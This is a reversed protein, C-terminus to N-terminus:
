AVGIEKAEPVIGVFNYYIEIRQTRKGDVKEPAFILIKEILENLVTASLKEIDTYKRVLKFFSDVNIVRSEERELEERLAEIQADVAKQEEEYTASLTKFRKESLIGSAYHEYSQQFLNDLEITRREAEHLAKRKANLSHKQEQISKEGILRVFEDEYACAFSLTQRMHSLVLDGLAEERIYHATCPDLKKKARSCLFHEQNPASHNTTAYYMKSGCDGCYLLGSFNSTKGVKTPRRKNARLVQVRDWTAKDIIAEQTNEFVVCQDAENIIKRKDKYSVTSTKFNVTCGTYESIALIKAVATCHWAFKNSTQNNTKRGQSQHYATPILINAQQLQRAIQSPGYGDLCLAFIKQVVQAAPKDVIWQKPNEPDKKYGYPPNTALHEGSNGKYMIVARIKKSTDRAYWENFLNRFPMMDNDGKLSDVGDNIAIFRVGHALFKRDTYIEVMVYDRGLRSLDKVIINGVKDAYVDDMMQNLGPRNFTTGSVGDDAYFTLNTFGNATAYTELMQKQNHISNSEGQMEDDRSLRCYLATLKDSQEIM